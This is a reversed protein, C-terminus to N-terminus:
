PINWINQPDNKTQNARFDASTARRKSWFFIGSNKQNWFLLVIGHIIAM